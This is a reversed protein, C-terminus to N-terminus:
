TTGGLTYFVSSAGLYASGLAPSATTLAAVLTGSSTASALVAAVAAVSPESSNTSNTSNTTNDPDSTPGVSAVVTTSGTFVGVIKVRSTDRINLLACLSNIFNTNHGNTFFDEIPM